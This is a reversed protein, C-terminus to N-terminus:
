TESYSDVIGPDWFAEMECFEVKWKNIKKKDNFVSDVSEAVIANAENTTINGRKHYKVPRTASWKRGFESIFKCEKSSHGAGHIM